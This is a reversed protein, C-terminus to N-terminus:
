GSINDEMGIYAFSEAERCVYLTVSVPEFFILFGKATADDEGIQSKM